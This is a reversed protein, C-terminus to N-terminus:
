TSIDLDRAYAVLHVTAVPRWDREPLRLFGLREYLRHASAMGVSSCLVVRCVGRDRARDLVARVLLEGVGRRRAPPAVALMRFELEDPRSIEAFPTGPPVVTVTGLVEGAGDVAVLVEAMRHRSETDALTAAYGGGDTGVHGDHRYAWVTLQGVM